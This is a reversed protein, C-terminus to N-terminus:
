WKPNLIMILYELDEKAGIRKLRLMKLNCLFLAYVFTVYTTVTQKKMERNKALTREANIREVKHIQNHEDFDEQLAFSTRCTSCRFPKELRHVLLHFSTKSIPLSKECRPCKWLQDNTKILKRISKRVGWANFRMM